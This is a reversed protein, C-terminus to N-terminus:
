KHGRKDWRAVDSRSDIHTFTDYRGIGGIGDFAQLCYNQVVNPSVNKVQIDCARSLIHQSNKSGGIKENYEICRNGSTVKIPQAFYERVNEVMSVLVSDVTDQGCGCNCAM